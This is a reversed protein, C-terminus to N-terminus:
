GKERDYGRKTTLLNPATKSPNAQVEQEEYPNQDRVLDGKFALVQPNVNLQGKPAKKGAM